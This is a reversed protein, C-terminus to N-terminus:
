FSLFKMKCELKFQVFSKNLLLLPIKDYLSNLRNTIANKGVLLNHNNTIKFHTQRSTLIQEFNLFTWEEIPYENNYLKHLLLSLKYTCFMEPTARNAIIHLNQYSIPQKPYHLAMKIANASFSLLKHKLCKNM